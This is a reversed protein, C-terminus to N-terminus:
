PKRVVRFGVDWYTEYHYDDIRNSVRTWGFSDLSSYSGGRMVLTQYAGANDFFLGTPGRPDIPAPLTGALLTYYAPWANDYADWCWEIVNGSMDYLGLENPQLEGVPHTMGDSNTEHWAVAGLSALDPAGAYDYQHTLIGGRAAYEWEAETPLRYGDAAPDLLVTPVAENITYCPSLGQHVSLANCFKIADLWSVREVPLSPDGTFHSPNVGMVQEYIGQTVEYPSMLFTSIVVDHEPAENGGYYNSGLKLPGGEVWVMTLASWARLHANLPNWCSVALLATGLVLM